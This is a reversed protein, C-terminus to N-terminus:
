TTDLRQPGEAADEDTFSELCGDGEYHVHRLNKALDEIARQLPTLPRDDPAALWGEEFAADCVVDALAEVKRLYDIESARRPREVLM